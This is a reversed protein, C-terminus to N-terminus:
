VKLLVLLQVRGRASRLASSYNGIFLLVGPTKPQTQSATVVVEPVVVASQFEKTDAEGDPPPWLWHIPASFVWPAVDSTRVGVFRPPVDM